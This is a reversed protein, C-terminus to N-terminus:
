GFFEKGSILKIKCYPSITEFDKTNDTVLYLNERKCVRAILADRIIRETHSASHKPIKGKKPSSLGRRLSNLIKGTLFWDEANPTFLTGNAERDKRVNGWFKLETNDSSGATLEELVIATMCFGQPYSPPQYTIFINTDFALTPM